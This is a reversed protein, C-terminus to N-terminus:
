GAARGEGDALSQALSRPSVGEVNRRHLDAGAAKLAEITSASGRYTFVARFLPTDGHADAPDVEAGADLLARVQSVDQRQAAFHLATWGANDAINPDAGAALLRQLRNLDGEIVAQLLDPRPSNVLKTV